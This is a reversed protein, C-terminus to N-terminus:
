GIQITDSSNGTNVLVTITSRNCDADIVDVDQWKVGHWIGGAGGAGGQQTTQQQPQNKPALEILKGKATDSIRIGSGEIPENSNVAAVIRNVVEELGRWGMQVSKLQM